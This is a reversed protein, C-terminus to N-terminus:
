AADSRRRLALVVGLGFSDLADEYRSIKTGTYAPDLMRRIEKEDVGLREAMGVNSLGAERMALWVTAKFALTIELPMVIEGKEPASPAPIDRRAKIMAAVAEDLADAAMLLAEDRDAGETVAEPIDRFTVLYSTDKQRELRAPWAMKRALKEGKNM